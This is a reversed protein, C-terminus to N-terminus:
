REFARGAIRKYLAATNGREGEFHSTRIIGALIELRWDYRATGPDTVSTLIIIGKPGYFEQFIIGLTRRWYEPAQADFLIKALSPDKGLAELVDEQMQQLLPSVLDIDRHDNYVRNVGRLDSRMWVDTLVGSVFGHRFRPGHMTGFGHLWHGYYYDHSIYRGSRADEVHALTWATVLTQFASALDAVKEFFSNSPNGAYADDPGEYRLYLTENDHSFGAEAKAWEPSGQEVEAISFFGGFGADRRPFITTFYYVTRDGAHVKVEDVEIVSKQIVTDALHLRLLRDGERLEHLNVWRLRVGFMGDTIGLQGIDAKIRELDERRPRRKGPVLIRSSQGYLYPAIDVLDDESRVQILPKGM